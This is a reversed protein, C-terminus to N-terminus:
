LVIRAAAQDLGDALRATDSGPRTMAKALENIEELVSTWGAFDELLPRM